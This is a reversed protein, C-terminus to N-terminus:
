VFVFDLMRDKLDAKLLKVKVKDGLRYRKKTREGVMAYNKEDFVYFDDKLDVLRVMGEALTEPEQVYIGWKALGSIVAEFEQGVKSTMYEIQKYRISDREAEQAVVERDSCHSSLTDYEKLMKESPTEGRLYVDLLRHVMVDPYRRIPSTFHAYHAFALGYHGINTTSYIAKAMSRMVVTQIINEEPTGATEKLLRNLDAAEILGNKDAPLKYGLPTLFNRLQQIKEQDPVDHIRYVFHKSANNVIKSVYEAVKRNALLMFDEILLHSDTREKRIVRLPKGTMPDLEFKIEDKEFSIAGAAFKEARLRYAIKNLLQLEQAHDGAGTDLIEQVEEYTFRRDSHIVTRGFWENTIDFKQNFTFVASFTLKDENPNLSCLDNSLVNPLMPITRDVLYISTARKRAEEDLASGPKVFHAVDAIHIGVEIQGDELKKFSLADDFDKADAPDITLTLTERFDRRTPLTHKFDTAANKKIAQAEAEVVVPFGPEFGKEYVIARMETDHEGPRGIVTVVEGIPDKKPDHWDHMKVLVKDGVQAGQLGAASVLIDKYMRKDDPLLFYFGNEQELVGVFQTRKRLSIEVVEGTPPEGTKKPQLVLKVRDGHLATNLFTPEVVVSESQNEIKVYGVGKTSINIIGELYEM